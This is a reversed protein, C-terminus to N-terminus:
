FHNLDVVISAKKEMALDHPPPSSPKFIQVLTVISGVLAALGTLIGAITSWFGSQQNNDSM